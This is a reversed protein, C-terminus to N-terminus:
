VIHLIGAKCVPIPTNGTIPKRLIKGCTINYSVLEGNHLHLPLDWSVRSKKIDTHTEYHCTSKKVM